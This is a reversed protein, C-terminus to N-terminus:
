KVAEVKKTCFFPAFNKNGLKVRKNILPRLSDIHFWPLHM